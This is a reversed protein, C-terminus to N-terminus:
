FRGVFRVRRRFLYSLAFSAVGEYRLPKKLKIHVTYDEVEVEYDDSGLVERILENFNLHKPEGRAKARCRSPCSKECSEENLFCLSPCIVDNYGSLLQSVTNACCARKLFILGENLAREKILSQVSHNVRLDVFKSKLKGPDVKLYRAVDVGERVLRRMISSSVRLNGVVIGYAGSAKAREVIEDIEEAKLGPLLPRMFIFPKFGKGRLRSVLELRKFPHPARKELHVYQSLTTVTVLISLKSNSARALEDISEDNIVMKTSIQCPNGLYERVAKLYELTKPLISPLFPETVSGFALYTGWRTPYFYKNFLLATVLQLGSLSYPAVHKGFGMDYIYCYSCQMPCGIGPHITLGCGIPKRKSHWDNKAVKLEEDKLREQVAKLLEKKLRVPNSNGAFAM